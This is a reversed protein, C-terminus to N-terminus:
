LRAKGRDMLFLDLLIDAALHMEDRLQRLESENLGDALPGVFRKFEDLDM